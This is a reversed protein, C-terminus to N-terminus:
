PAWTWLQQAGRAPAPEALPEIDNLLWAFRGPSYDGYPREREDVAACGDGLGWRRGAIGDEPTWIIAEVPLVEVLTATAVVAGLPPQIELTPHSPELDVLFTDGRTGEDSSRHCYGAQFDGIFGYRWGAEENGECDGPLEYFGRSTKAAHIALPGRYSTSWSRTEITKAGIAVLSAWPQWLSLAKM